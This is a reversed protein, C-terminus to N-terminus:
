VELGAAEALRVLEAAGVLRLRDFRGIRRVPGGPGPWAEYWTTLEITASAPDHRASSIKAVREGSVPDPREWELGLRGDCASLEDPSPLWVDVVALGGPVLHAALRHVAIAQDEPAALLFLSNLALFALGFRAGLRATLLDAEVVHLAAGPPRPSTSTSIALTPPSTSITTGPSTPM